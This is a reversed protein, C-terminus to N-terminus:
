LNVGAHVFLYDEWEHKLPLSKFFPLLWPYQKQIEKANEVFSEKKMDKGLLSNVTSGGGNMYYLNVYESPEELFLELMQDHNGKIVIADENQVLEYAREITAKSNEGRDALDGLFLLQEDEPKWYKLLKELMTIQGHV